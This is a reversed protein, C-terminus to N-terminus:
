RKDFKSDQSRDVIDVYITRLTRDIEFSIGEACDRVLFADEDKREKPLIELWLLRKGSPAFVELNVNKRRIHRFVYAGKRNTDKSRDNKSSREEGRAVSLRLTVGKVPTGERDTVVGKIKRGAFLLYLLLPSAAVPLLIFRLWGKESTNNDSVTIVSVDEETSCSCDNYDSDCCCEESEATGTRDTRTAAIEAKRESSQRNTRSHINLRNTLEDSSVVSVAPEIQQISVVAPITPINNSEGIESREETEPKTPETSHSIPQVMPAQASLEPTTDEHSTPVQPAPEQAIPDNSGSVSTPTSSESPLPPQPTTEEQEPMSAQDIDNESQDDDGDDSSVVSDEVGDTNEAEEDNGKDDSANEDDDGDENENEPLQPEQEPIIGPESEPDDENEDGDHRDDNGDSNGSDDPEGNKDDGSDNENNGIDENDDGNEGTNSNEGGDEEDDDGSDIPDAGNSVSAYIYTARVIEDKEIWRDNGDWGMFMYGEREPDDPPIALDMYEVIDEKLITGDWDVYTVTYTKISYIASIVRNETVNTYDGDWGEFIYGEREELVPPTADEGYSVREDKLFSGYLGLFTVSYTAKTPDPDAAEVPLIVAAMGAPGLFLIALFFAFLRNRKRM